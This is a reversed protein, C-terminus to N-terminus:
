RYRPLSVGSNRKVMRKNITKEAEIELEIECEGVDDNTSYPYISDRAKGLKMSMGVLVLIPIWVYLVENSLTYKSLTTNDEYDDTEQLTKTSSKVIERYYSVKLEVLVIDYRECYAPILRDVAKPGDTNLNGHQKRTYEVCDRYLASGKDPQMTLFQAQKEYADLSKKASELSTVLEDREREILYIIQSESKPSGFTMLVFVFGGVILYYIYDLKKFISSRNKLNSTALLQFSVYFIGTFVIVEDFPIYVALLMLILVPTYISLFWAKRSMSFM